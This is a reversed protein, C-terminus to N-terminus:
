LSSSANASSLSIPKGNRPSIRGTMMPWAAAYRSPGLSGLSSLCAHRLLRQDLLGLALRLELHPAVVTALAATPRAGEDALEAHAPNAEALQRELALDGADALRAPSSVGMIVSGIASM